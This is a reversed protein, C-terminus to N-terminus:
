AARPQPAARVTVLMGAPIYPLREMGPNLKLLEELTMGVERALDSILRVSNLTIRRLKQGPSETLRRDLRIAAERNRRASDRIGWNQPNEARDCSVELKEMKFAFDHLAASAKQIQAMGQALVGDVAQLIDVSPEPTPEQRWDAKAVEKDLAGAESTLGAVGSLDKIAPDEATLEPTHTFEVSVDTGCRKLVDTEDDFAKPVCRFQGLIPDMLTGPERNLTDRTLVALGVTFLNKYPGRAISERMPLTYSFTLEHAGLQEIFEFDRYQITHTVGEHRFSVRRRTVPYKAGRWEFPPLLSLVDPM